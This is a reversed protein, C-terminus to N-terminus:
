LSIAESSSSVNSSSFFASLVNVPAEFCILACAWCSPQPIAARVETQKTHTPLIVPYGYIQHSRTRGFLDNIGGDPANRILGGFVKNKLQM